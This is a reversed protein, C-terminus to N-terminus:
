AKAGRRGSGLVPEALMDLPWRARPATAMADGDDMGLRRRELAAWAIMAGNDGCLAPPPALFRFGRAGAVETLRARLAANAAVGGAAVLVPAAIGPHEA